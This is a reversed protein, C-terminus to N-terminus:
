NEPVPLEPCTAHYPVSRGVFQGWESQTFNRGALNCAKEIWSQPDLDWLIVEDKSASILTKGDPLFFIGGSLVAKTHGKLVVRQLSNEPDSIDWLIIDQDEGGSAMTKGDPSIAVSTVAGAHASIPPLLEPAGNPNLPNLRWISITSNGNASALLTGDANFAVGGPDVADLEGIMTPVNEDSFDWLQVKCAAVAVLNGIKTFATDKFPCETSGLRTTDKTSPLKSIDWGFISTTGNGAEGALLYNNGAAFVDATDTGFLYENKSVDLRTLDLRFATPNYADSSYDGLILLATDSPNFALHRIPNRIPTKRRETINLPDAVDWLFISGENNGVALLNLTQSYAVDTIEADNSIQNHWIHAANRQNLDWIAVTSNNGGVALFDGGPHLAISGISQMPGSFSGIFKIHRPDTMDWEAITGDQATTYLKQNDPSIVLNEIVGQHYKAYPETDYLERETNSYFYVWIYKTDAIILLKSSLAVHPIATDFEFTNGLPESPNYSYKGLNWLRLFSDVGGSLLLPATSGPAFGVYSVEVGRDSIEHPHAVGGKTQPSRPNSIDWFKITTNGAVALVSNDPSVAVQVPSSFDNLTTLETVTPTSVDWVEVHGDQYGIAMLKSNDSFTVDGPPSTSSSEWGTLLTPSAPDKTNWLHVTDSLSVMLDGNPAYLTQQVAGSSLELNQVLGRSIQDLLPPLADPYQGESLNNIELLRFSEVGLLLGQIYNIDMRSQAVGYLSKSLSNIIEQGLAASIANITATGELASSTAEANAVRTSDANSTQLAQIENTVAAERTRVEFITTSQANLANTRQGWAFFTLSGMVVLVLILSILVLRRGREQNRRSNLVFEQIIGKRSVDPLENRLLLQEAEVLEKGRLLRSRDKKTREWDLARLQLPDRSRLLSLHERVWKLNFVQAYIQNSVRLVNPSARRVVGSLKLHVQSLSREDDEVKEKSLVQEYFGLVEAPNAARKLLMDRVFQLNNDQQSSEGMFIDQAVKSVSEKTLRGPEKVLAACLSQTLYPHGGTWEFVWDLAQPSSDKLGESLPQAEELTFDTLDVRQGINFPTRKSDSILDSPSAVGILVFSLREFDPTTPRANYIARLTAFFDDSFPISLTSDIEDFFLIVRGKVEQLLVDRFFNGLRQAPGLRAHESWWGFIDTQLGLSNTIENLIGIYWEEASINVGIASLDVIASRINEKELQQATRVMLSSKGVQRSSLIFAFKGARCLELLETDAAREIYVGSGAQVAGGVTYISKQEAM